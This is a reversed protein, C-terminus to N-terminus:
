YLSYRVVFKPWVEEAWVKLLFPRVKGESSCRWLGEWDCRPMGGDLAEVVLMAFPAPPTALDGFDIRQGYRGRMAQDLVDLAPFLPQQRRFLLAEAVVEVSPAVPPRPM